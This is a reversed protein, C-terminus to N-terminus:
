NKNIKKFKLKFRYLIIFSLINYQKLCFLMSFVRSYYRWDKRPVEKVYNGKAISLINERIIDSHMFKKLERKTDFFKNNSYEYVNLCTNDIATFSFYALLDKIHSGKGIECAYNYFSEGLNIYREALNKKFSTTISGTSKYYFYTYNDVLEIKPYNIIVKLNFLLDEAFIVDNKEFKIGLKNLFECNYLKNWATTGYSKGFFYKFRETSDSLLQHNLSSKDFPQRFVIENKENIIKYNGIIIDAKTTEARKQLLEISDKEIFDDSDLFYVYQGTMIEMGSNRAESLGGNDRHLVLIRNDKKAYRECIEGCDDPSGDNVLIIEINEYTQEIASDVCRELTEEVKYVPIIISIKM